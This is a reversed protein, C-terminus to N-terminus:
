YRIRPDVVAHLIDVALNALVICLTAFLVTGMILPVDAHEISDVALKGIGPWSFVDEIVVVGGLFFGLDLGIQILIPGIANRLAHRRLVAAGSVGKARATRVYDRHLEEIMTARVLRQYYAAGGFGLALAPPILSPLDWAKYGGGIPFIDIHALHLQFIGELLLYGVWFGPASVLVITAITSSRDFWSGQRAAALIGLPLGIVLEVFLGAIALQLTAPFRQLVLPLVDRNQSISHGFNGQLINGVYTGLQELFPRDLGLAHRIRDVDEPRAQLGAAMRAPDAPLVYTLFFTVLAIAALVALGWLLRRATYVLM